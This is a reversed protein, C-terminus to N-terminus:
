TTLPCFIQVDKPWTALSPMRMARVSGSAGLCRPMEYKMQGMSVGPISTRGIMSMVPAWANLSTNKVSARM